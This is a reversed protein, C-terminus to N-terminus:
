TAVAYLLLNHVGPGLGVALIVGLLLYGAVPDERVYDAFLWVVVASITIKVAVFVWGVGLTDATPLLAALDLIARSAPTREGFGLVDVGIATSVGDVTHAFIVLAGIHPLADGVSPRVWRVAVWTLGTLVLSVVLGVLPWKPRIGPGIALLVVVAATFGAAGVGGFVWRQQPWLVTAGVLTAGALVFTTGYVAPAGLLPLVVPAAGGIQYVAHLASGVTIWPVAELILGSTVPPKLRVLLWGIIATGGLLVVTHPLPPVVFGEPLVM